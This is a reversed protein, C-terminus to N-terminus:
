EGSDNHVNFTFNEPTVDTEERLFNDLSERVDQIDEDPLQILLILSAM